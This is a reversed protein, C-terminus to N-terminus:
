EANGEMNETIIIQKMNDLLSLIIATILFMSGTLMIYLNYDPNGM